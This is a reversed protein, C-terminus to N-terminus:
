FIQTWSAHIDSPPGRGERRLDIGEFSQYGGVTLPFFVRVLLLKNLFDFGDERYFQRCFVRTLSCQGQFFSPENSLKRVELGRRFSNISPDLSVLPGKDKFPDSVM